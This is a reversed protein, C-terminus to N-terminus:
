VKRMGTRSGPDVERARALAKYNTPRSVRFHEALKAVKMHSTRYMEWAQERDHPTLRTQKHIIM